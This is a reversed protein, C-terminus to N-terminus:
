IDDVEKMTLTTNAVVNTEYNFQIEDSDLRVLNMYSAMLINNRPIDTGIVDNLIIKGVEKGSVVDTTYTLIDLIYSQWDKTFIVLKKKRANNVYYQSIKNWDTYIFNDTASVDGKIKIDNAWTPCWFSKYRGSVRDFFKKMNHIQQINILNYKYSHLDYSKNNKMDYKFIGSDNDLRNTAKDISLSVDSDDVWTPSLRFVQVGDITEPLKWRNMQPYTEYEVLYKNPIQINTSMLVDEFNMAVDTGNSYIYNLGNVPQISCPKLPFIWTNEKYLRKLITQKLAIIGDLYTQVKRVINGEQNPDDGFFIEIWECDKFNYIYDKDIYLARGAVFDDSLYAGEHWMPIYYVDTQRIRGMGRLWQAQLSDMAPYDYTLFHRPYQRVKIRQEHGDYSTIIDTLYEFKETIAQGSM